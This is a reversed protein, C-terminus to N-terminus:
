FSNEIFFRACNAICHMWTVSIIEIVIVFERVNRNVCYEGSQMEQFFEICISDWFIGSNGAESIKWELSLIFNTYTDKSIINKGGEEGPTFAMTGDEITWEPYMGEANYGRWQDLNSGDFLIVWDNEQTNTETTVEEEEQIEATEAKNDKQKCSVLTATIMLITLIQRM